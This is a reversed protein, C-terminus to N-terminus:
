LEDWEVGDWGMRGSIATFSIDGYLIYTSVSNNTPRPPSMAHHQREFANEQMNDLRDYSNVPAGGHVSTPAGGHVSMTSRDLKDYSERGNSFGM